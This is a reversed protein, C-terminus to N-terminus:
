EHVKVRKCLPIWVYMTQMKTYQYPWCINWIFHPLLADSGNLTVLPTLCPLMKHGIRKLRRMYSKDSFNFAQLVLQTTTPITMFWRIYESSHNQNTPCLLVLLHLKWNKELLDYVFILSPDKPRKWIFYPTNILISSLTCFATGDRSNKTNLLRRSFQDM